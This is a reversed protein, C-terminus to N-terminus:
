LEIEALDHGQECSFVPHYADIIVSKVTFGTLECRHGVDGSLDFTVYDFAAAALDESCVPTGEAATKDPKEYLSSIHM